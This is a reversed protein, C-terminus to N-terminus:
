ADYGGYFSSQFGTLYRCWASIKGIGGDFNLFIKRRKSPLLLTTLVEGTHLLFQATTYGVNAPIDTYWSGLLVKAIM